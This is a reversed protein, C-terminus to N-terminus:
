GNDSVQLVARGNKIPNLWTQQILKGKFIFYPSLTIDNFVCEILSVLGSQWGSCQFSTSEHTMSSSQLQKISMAFRKENM